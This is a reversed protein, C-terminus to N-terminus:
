RRRPARAPARPLRRKLTEIDKEIRRHVVGSHGDLEKELDAFGKKTEARHADVKTEVRALDDKTAMKADLGAVQAQMAAIAKLVDKLTPEAM